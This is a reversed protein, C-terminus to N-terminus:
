RVHKQAHESHKKVLKRAQGLKPTPVLGVPKEADKHLRTLFRAAEKGRLIPTAGIPQAM